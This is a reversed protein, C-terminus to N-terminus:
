DYVHASVYWISPSFVFTFGAIASGCSEGVGRESNIMVEIEACTVLDDPDDSGGFAYPQFNPKTMEVDANGCIYCYEGEAVPPLSVGTSGPCCLGQALEINQCFAENPAGLAYNAFDTCTLGNDDISRDPNELGDPGSCFDCQVAGVTTPCCLSQAQKYEDCTDATTIAPVLAALTACDLDPFDIGVTPVERDPFELGLAGSCWDCQFSDM